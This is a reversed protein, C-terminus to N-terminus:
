AAGKMALQLKQLKTDLSSDVMRSGVRVVMGGLLEPDVSTAVSVASGMARKLADEVAARQSDSMPQATTVEATIEGRHASVLARYARIIDELAFLRRNAAVVGVLNRVLTSAGASELIAAMAKSQQERSFIPSRIFRRFDASADIAAQLGSLDAGTADIEDRERALDFLASAYRGALGSTGTQHSAV